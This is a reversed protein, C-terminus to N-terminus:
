RAAGAAVNAGPTDERYLGFAELIPVDSLTFLIAPETKSDNIHRHSAWNPVAVSDHRTWALEQQDFVTRGEGQVVFHIASSTRRTPIGVFGPPLWQV